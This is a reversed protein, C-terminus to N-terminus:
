KRGKRKRMAKEYAQQRLEETMPPYIREFRGGTLNNQTIIDVFQQTVFTDPNGCQQIKFILQDEIVNEKFILIHDGSYEFSRPIGEEIMKKTRPRWVITSYEENLVDRYDYINLVKMLAFVNPDDCLLPLFEVKDTLVPRLIDVARQSLIPCGYFDWFCSIDGYKNSPVAYHEPARDDIWFVSLPKWTSSLPTTGLVVPDSVKCFDDYNEYPLEYRRYGTDLEEDFGYILM